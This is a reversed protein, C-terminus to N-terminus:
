QYTDILTKIIIGLMCAMGIMFWAILGPHSCEPDDFSDSDSLRESQKKKM